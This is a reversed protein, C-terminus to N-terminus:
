NSKKNKSRGLIYACLMNCGFIFMSPYILYAILNPSFTGGNSIMMVFIFLLVFGIANAISLFDRIM